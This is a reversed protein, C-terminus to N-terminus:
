RFHPTSLTCTKCWWLLFVLVRVCKWDVDKWMEYLTSVGWWCPRCSTSAPSIMVLKSIFFCRFPTKELRDVSSGISPLKHIRWRTVSDSDYSGKMHLTLQPKIVLYISSSRSNFLFEVVINLGFHQSSELVFLLTQMSMSQLTYPFMNRYLTICNWCCRVGLVIGSNLWCISYSLRWM